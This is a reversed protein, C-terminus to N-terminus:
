LHKWIYISVCIIASYASERFVIAFTPLNYLNAVFYIYWILYLASNIDIYLITLKKVNNVKSINIYTLWSWFKILQLCNTFSHIRISNISFCILIWFIKTRSCRWRHDCLPFKLGERYTFFVLIFRMSNDLRGRLMRRPVGRLIWVHM